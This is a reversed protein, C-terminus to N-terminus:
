HSEARVKDHPRSQPIWLVQSFTNGVCVGYQSISYINSRSLCLAPPYVIEENKTHEAYFM